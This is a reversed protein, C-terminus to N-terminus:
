FKNQGWLVIFTVGLIGVLLVKQWVVIQGLVPLQLVSFAAVVGLASGAVHKVEM